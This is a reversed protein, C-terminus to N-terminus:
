RVKKLIDFLIIAKQVAEVFKEAEEKSSLKLEALRHVAAAISTALRATDKFGGAATVSEIEGADNDRDVVCIVRDGKLTCSLKGDEFIVIKYEKM